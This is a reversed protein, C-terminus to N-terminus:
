LNLNIIIDSEHVAGANKVAIHFVTSKRQQRDSASQDALPEYMVYFGNQEINRIFVAYVGFFDSSTWTGPAFVGCKVFGRVTKEICDQITNHGGTTQPVKTGSGHLLNFTDTQVADIFGILNYRNDVFGNGYSCMVIPVNKITTYLDLGVVKAAAIQDDSYSEAVVNLTKLHMTMASNEAAFNVTHVRAMYSAALKRNGAASYLMRYNKQSALKVQWVVNTSAVTLNAPDSFVDYILINNAQAYASLDTVDADEPQDIFMAGFIGTEAQIATIADVMDEASLTASAAGDDAVAGTGSALGLINGVFIGTGPDEMFGIASSAGTTGSTVVLENDDSV